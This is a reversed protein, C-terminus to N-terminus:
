GTSPLATSTQQTCQIRQYAEVSSAPAANRSTIIPEVHSAGDTYVPCGDSATLPPRVHATIISDHHEHKPAPVSQRNNTRATRFRLLGNRQIIHQVNSDNNAASHSMTRSCRPNPRRRPLLHIQRPLMRPNSRLPSRPQHRRRM